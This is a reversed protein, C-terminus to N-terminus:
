KFNVPVFHFDKVGYFSDNYQVQNIDLTETFLRKEKKNVKSLFVDLSVATAYNVWDYQFDASMLESFAIMGKDINPNIASIVYLRSADEKPILTPLRPNYNIQTSLFAIPMIKTNCIQPLVVGTKIVATNMAIVSSKISGRFKPVITKFNNSTKTDIAMNFIISNSKSKLTGGLMKGISSDDNLSILNAGKKHAMAAIMEVQKDYDIGGFFVNNYNALEKVQKRNITPIFLPTTIETNKILNTAGKPTLIAIIVNFNEEKARNYANVLHTTDEDNSDFAKFEFNEARTALYLLISDASTTSYRGIGKQPILLAVKIGSQSDIKVGDIKGSATIEEDKSETILDQKKINALQNQMAFIDIDFLQALEGFYQEMKSDKLNKFEAIFSFYEENELLEKLCSKPCIKTSLSIVEISPTPLPSITQTRALVSEINCFILALIFFIKTIKM